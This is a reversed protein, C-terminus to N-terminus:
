WSTGNGQEFRQVETSNPAEDHGFLWLDCILCLKPFVFFVCFTDCVPLASFRKWWPETLKEDELCSMRIHKQWCLKESHDVGHLWCQVRRQTCCHHRLSKFGVLGNGNREVTLSGSTINGAAFVNVTVNVVYLGQPSKAFDYGENRSDKPWARRALKPRRLQKPPQNSTFVFQKKSSDCGCCRKRLM